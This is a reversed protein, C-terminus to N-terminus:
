KNTKKFIEILEKISQESKDKRIANVVCSHLHRDLLLDEVKKLSNKVASTQQLIDICYREEEIMKMVKKLHGDIIKMRRLIDEKSNKDHVM